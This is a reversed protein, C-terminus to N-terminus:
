QRQLQLQLHLQLPLQLQLASVCDLDSQSLWHNPSTLHPITFIFQVVM